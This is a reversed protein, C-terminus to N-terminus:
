IKSLFVNLFKLIGRLIAEKYGEWELQCWQIGLMDIHMIILGLTRTPPPNYYDATQATHTQRHARNSLLRLLYMIMRTWSTEFSRIDLNRVNLRITIFGHLHLVPVSLDCPSEIWWVIRSIRRGTCNNNSLSNRIPLVAPGAEQPDWFWFLFLCFLFLNIFSEPNPNRKKHMRNTYQM